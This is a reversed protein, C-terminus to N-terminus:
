FAKFLQFYMMPNQATPDSTPQDKTEHWAISTRLNFGAMGQFNLGLGYGTLYRSNNLDGVLPKANVRSFGTDFFGVLEFYGSLYALSPLRYRVEGNFL